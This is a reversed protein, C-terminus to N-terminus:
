GATRRTRTPTTAIACGSRSHTSRARRLRSTTRRRTSRGTWRSSSSRTSLTPRRGRRRSSRRISRTRSSRPTRRGRGFALDATIRTQRAFKFQAGFAGRTAENDPSTSFRAQAPGGPVATSVYALDTARFPNDVILSDIRDNYLNRNFTAHVNGKNQFNWAWRVGFDQTVEDLPEPVDVASPSWASFTAAARAATGPRSTATTPSRWTSRCSGASMSRSTAASACAASTSTSPRRSRRPSCPRTSRTTARRRGAGRRGRRRAVQAAHREHEVRRPGDRHVADAGDNGMNHPIQNYDFAVGLWNVNPGAPTASTPRPSTRASCRSTRQGRASGQSASCRCRCARRCSATSRSSRRPSTTAASCCCTSTATSGTRRPKSPRDAPQAAASRRRRRRPRDARPRSREHRALGCAFLMTLVTIRKM